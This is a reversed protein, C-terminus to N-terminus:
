DPCKPPADDPEDDARWEQLTGLFGAVACLFIMGAFAGWMFSAAHIEVM